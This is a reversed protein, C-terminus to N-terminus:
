LTLSFSLGAFFNHAKATGSCRLARDVMSAYGIRPTIRVRSGVKVPASFAPHFDVMAAGRPGFNRQNYGSSGAGLGATVEASWTVNPRPKLLTFAHSFDCTVYTGSIAGVGVYAKVSPRLPVAFSAGGYLETMSAYPTNPFTYRIAGGSLTMKEASYDYGMDYDVESFKGRRGNVSGLDTNTFLNLHFARYGATTSTQLVPGDTIVMGRWVYQNYASAEVNVGPRDAAQLGAAGCLVAVSSLLFFRNM